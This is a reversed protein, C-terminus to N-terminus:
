QKMLEDVQRLVIECRGVSFEGDSSRLKSEMDVWFPAGNVQKAILPLESAINDPGLGGAYGCFTNELVIPWGDRPSHGNGGSSDFLFQVNNSVNRVAPWLIDNARNYQIIVKKGYLHIANELMALSYQKRGQHFNLQVRDFRLAKALITEDGDLFADVDSGCLHIAKKVNPCIDHFHSVWEDTPFRATGANKASSLIAWEVMPYCSSLTRLEKPAVNDDAGTLSTHILRM